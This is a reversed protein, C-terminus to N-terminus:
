YFFRGEGGGQAESEGKGRGSCFFIFFISVDVLSIGVDPDRIDLFIRGSFKTQKRRLSNPSLPFM